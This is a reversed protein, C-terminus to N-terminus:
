SLTLDWHHTHNELTLILWSSVLGIKNMQEWFLEYARESELISFHLQTASNRRTTINSRTRYCRANFHLILLHKFERLGKAPIWKAWEFDSTDTNSKSHMIRHNTYNVYWETYVIYSIDSLFSSIIFSKWKRPMQQRKDSHRFLWM